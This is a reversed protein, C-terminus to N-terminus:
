RECLRRMVRECGIAAFIKIFRRLVLCLPREAISRICDIAAWEILL